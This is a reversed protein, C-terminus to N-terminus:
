HPYEEPSYKKWVILDEHRKPIDLNTFWRTLGSLKKSLEGTPTIFDKPQTYGLWMKNEKILPFVEKYTIANKNAIILFKKNYTM